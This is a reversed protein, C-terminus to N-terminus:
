AQLHKAHFTRPRPNSEGRRWWWNKILDRLTKSVNRSKVKQPPQLRSSKEWRRSMGCETLAFSALFVKLPIKGEMLRRPCVWACSTDRPRCLFAAIRQRTTQRTAEPLGHCLPHLGLFAARFGRGPCPFSSPEPQVPRGPVHQVAKLAAGRRGPRRRTTKRQPSGTAPLLPKGGHRCPAPLQAKTWKSPQHSAPSRRELM